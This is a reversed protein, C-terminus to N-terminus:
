KHPKGGKYDAGQVNGGKVPGPQSGSGQSSSQQDDQNELGIVLIPGLIAAAAGLGGAPLDLLWWDHKRTWTATKHLADVLEKSDEDTWKEFMAATMLAGLLVDTLAKFVMTLVARKHDETEAAYAAVWVIVAAGVLASFLICWPHDRYRDHFEIKPPGVSLEITQGLTFQVNSGITFQMSGGLGSGLVGTLIEMLPIGPVGAALGAPNVCVQVSNGLTIQHNMGTVGQLNEGYVMVSNLGLIGTPPPEPMPDATDFGKGYVSGGSGGGPILNGVTLMSAVSVREGKHRGAHIM